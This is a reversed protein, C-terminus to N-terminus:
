PEWDPRKWTRQNRERFERISQPIGTSARVMSVFAWLFGLFGAGVGLMTILVGVQGLLQVDVWWALFTVAVGTAAVLLAVMFPVFPRVAKDSIRIPTDLWAM